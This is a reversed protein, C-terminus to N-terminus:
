LVTYIMFSMLFVCGTKEYTLREFLQKLENDFEHLCKISLTTFSVRSIAFLWQTYNALQSGAENLIKITDADWNYLNGTSIIGETKHTELDTLLQNLKTQTNADQESAIAQYRVELQYFDLSPLKLHAMLSFREVTEPLDARKANNLEQISTNQEQKLQKNLTDANDQNLWILATEDSNKDVQRLCRCATQLVM